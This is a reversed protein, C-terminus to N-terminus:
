ASSPMRSLSVHSSNLRTSKRDALAPTIARVFIGVQHHHVHHETRIQRCISSVLNSPIAFGVGENGGSKTLIFANVGVVEGATDVLPGGSNGPNIAADTQIYALPSDANLQRDVASVVGM